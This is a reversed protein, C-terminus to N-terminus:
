PTEGPVSWWQDPMVRPIRDDHAPVVIDARALVRAMSGSYVLESESRISGPRFAGRMANSPHNTARPDAPFWAAYEEGLDSVLAATGRTTTALVVQLGPTHGPTKMVSLGPLLDMDGEILRLGAPRRRELLPMYSPKAYYIRQTPVPDIAHFLEERQLVIQTNPFLEYNWGHDFHLHTLILMSIQEPAVGIGALEARLHEAGGGVAEVKWKAMMEAASPMGGDVLVWRTGDTLAWAHTPIVDGSEHFGPLLLQGTSLTHIRWTTM